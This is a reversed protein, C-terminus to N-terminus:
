QMIGFAAGMLPFSLLLLLLSFILFCGATIFAIKIWMKANKAAELAGQVDGQDYRSSMQTAYVIGVLGFPMFCLFTALISEVLYNKPRPSVDQPHTM